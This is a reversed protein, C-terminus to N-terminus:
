FFNCQSKFWFPKLIYALQYVYICLVLPQKRLTNIWIFQIRNRFLKRERGIALSRACNTQKECGFRGILLLAPTDADAAWWASRLPWWTACGTSGGSTLRWTPPKRRRTASARSSVVRLSLCFSAPRNKLTYSVSDISLGLPPWRPLDTPSTTPPHFLKHIQTVRSLANMQPQLCLHRRKKKEKVFWFWGM